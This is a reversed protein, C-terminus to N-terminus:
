NIKWKYIKTKVVRSKGLGKVNPNYWYELMCPELDRKPISLCFFIKFNVIKVWFGRLWTLINIYQVHAIRFSFLFNFSKIRKQKRKKEAKFHIQSTLWILLLTMFVLFYKKSHAKIVYAQYNKHLLEFVWM